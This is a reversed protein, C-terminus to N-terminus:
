YFNLGIRHVTRIFSIEFLLDPLICHVDCSNVDHTEGVIDREKEREQSYKLLTSRGRNENM